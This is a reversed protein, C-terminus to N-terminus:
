YNLRNSTRPLAGPNPPNDPRINQTVSNALSRFAFLTSAVCAGGSVASLWSPNGVALDNICLAATTAAIGTFAFFSHGGKDM